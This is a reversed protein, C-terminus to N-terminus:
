NKNRDQKNQYLKHCLNWIINIMKDTRMLFYKHIINNRTIIIDNWDNDFRNEDNKIIGAAEGIVVLNNLVADYAMENEALESASKFPTIYKHIKEIAYAFENLSDQINREERYYKSKLQYYKTRHTLITETDPIVQEELFTKSLRRSENKLLCRRLIYKINTTFSEGKSIRYNKRIIIKILHHRKLYKITETSLINLNDKTSDLQHLQQQINDIPEDKICTTIQIHNNNKILKIWGNSIAQNIGKLDCKNSILYHKLDDLLIINGSRKSSSTIYQWIRKEPSGHLLYEKGVQTLLYGHIEKGKLVVFNNSELLQLCYDWLKISWQRTAFIEDLINWGNEIIGRIELLYILNTIIETSYKYIVSWSNNDGILKRINCVKFNKIKNSLLDYFIDNWRYNVITNWKKCVMSTMFIYKPHEVYNFIKKLIQDDLLDM